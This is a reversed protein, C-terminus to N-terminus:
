FKLDYTILATQNKLHIKLAFVLNDTNQELVIVDSIREVRGDLVMPNIADAIINYAEQNTIKEGQQLREYFTSGFDDDFIWTGKQTLCRLSVAQFISNENYVSKYDNNTPNIVMDQGYEIYKDIQLHEIQM